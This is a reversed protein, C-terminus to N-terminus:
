PYLAERRRKAALAIMTGALVAVGVSAAIGPVPDVPKPPLYTVGTEDTRAPETVYRGQSPMPFKRAFDALDIAAQNGSMPMGHGCALTFPKLGALRQVSDRAAGWDYTIPTPPRSIQRRKTVIALFSDLNVTTFADGALLTGDSPRYFSVHGPAHGPTHCWEWGALGPADHGFPLERVRDGLDFPGMRAFFRCMFAMFGPATPDAPPYASRTTLYPLELHHCYIPVDWLISLELASGAHDFHGHTLLIASPRAGPGYRREAAERIQDAKGPMGADVMVWEGRAGDVFYVNAISVPLHAVGRAIENAIQGM